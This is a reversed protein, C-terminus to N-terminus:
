YNIWQYTIHNIGQVCFQTLNLWGGIVFFSRTYPAGLFWHKYFTPFLDSIYYTIDKPLIIYQVITKYVSIATSSKM